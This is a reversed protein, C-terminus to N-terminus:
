FVPFHNPTRMERLLIASITLDLTMNRPCVLALHYLFGDNIFIFRRESQGLFTFLLPIITLYSFVMSFNLAWPKSTGQPRPERNLNRDEKDQKKLHMM